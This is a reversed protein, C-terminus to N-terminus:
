KIPIHKSKNHVYRVILITNFAKNKSELVGNKFFGSEMLSKWKFSTRYKCFMRDDLTLLHPSDSLYSELSM